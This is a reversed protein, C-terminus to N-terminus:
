SSIRRAAMQASAAMCKALVGVGLALIAIQSLLLTGPGALALIGLTRPLHHVLRVHAM